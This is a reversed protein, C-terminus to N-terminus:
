PKLRSDARAILWIGSPFTPTAYDVIKQRWPLITFGTAIVDGKIPSEGVIQIDAGKPQVKKGTLDAIMISWNTEVFVYEVGLYQSFLKILEVDLGTDYNRSVFNAYPIGLHRLKGSKKVEALDGALLPIQQFFIGIFFLVMLVLRHASTTKSM